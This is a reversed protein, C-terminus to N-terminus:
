RPRSHTPFLYFRVPKGGGHRTTDMCIQEGGTFDRIWKEAVIFGGDLPHPFAIPGVLARKVHGVINQFVVPHQQPAFSQISKGSDGDVSLLDALRVVHEPKPLKVDFRDQLTAVVFNLNQEFRGIWNHVLAVALARKVLPNGRGLRFAAGPDAFLRATKPPIPTWDQRAATNPLVDAQFGEVLAPNGVNQNQLVM